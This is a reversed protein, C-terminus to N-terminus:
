TIYMPLILLQIKYRILYPLGSLPPSPGSPLSFLVKLFLSFVWFSLSLGCVCLPTLIYGEASLSFARDTSCGVYEICM